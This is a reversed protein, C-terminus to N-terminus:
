YKVCGEAMNRKAGGVVTEKEKVDVFKDRRMWESFAPHRALWPLLVSEEFIQVYRTELLTTDATKKLHSYITLM